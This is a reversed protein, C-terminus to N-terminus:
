RLGSPLKPEESRSVTSVGPLRAALVGAELERDLTSLDLTAFDIFGDPCAADSGLAGEAPRRFAAHDLRCHRQKGWLVGLPHGELPLFHPDGPTGGDDALVATEDPQM